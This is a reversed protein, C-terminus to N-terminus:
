DSQQSPRIEKAEPTPKCILGLNVQERTRHSRRTALLALQKNPSPVPGGAKELALAQVKKITVAFSNESFDKFAM